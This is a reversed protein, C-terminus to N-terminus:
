FKMLCQKIDGKLKILFPTTKNGSWTMKKNLKQGNKGDMIQM